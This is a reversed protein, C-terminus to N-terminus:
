GKAMIFRFPVDGMRSALQQTAAFQTVVGKAEVLAIEEVDAVHGGCLVLDVLAGEIALVGAISERTEAYRGCHIVGNKARLAVGAFNKSYPAYSDRAATGALKALDRSEIAGGGSTQQRLLHGVLRETRLGKLNLGIERITRGPEPGGPAILIKMNEWDWIERLFQRCCACPETEVLLSHLTTEGGAWASLVAAQAGHVSFKIGTGRWEINAGLYLAGSGGEAVAGLAGGPTQTQSLAPGFALLHMMIDARAVKDLIEVDAVEGPNLQVPGLAGRARLKDRIIIGLARPLRQLAEMITLPPRRREEPLECRGLMVRWRELEAEDAASLSLM